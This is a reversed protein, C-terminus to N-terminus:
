RPIMYLWHDMSSSYLEIVSSWPGAMRPGGSTPTRTGVWLAPWCWKILWVSRPMVTRSRCRPLSQFVLSSYSNNFSNLIAMQNAKHNSRYWHGNTHSTRRDFYDGKMLVPASATAIGAPNEAICTYMGADQRLAHYIFLFSRGHISPSATSLCINTCNKQWKSHSIFWINKQDRQSFNLLRKQTLMKCKITSETVKRETHIHLNQTVKIETPIHSCHYRPRTTWQPDVHSCSNTDGHCCM